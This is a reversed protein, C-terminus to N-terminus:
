IYNSMNNQIHKKGNHHFPCYKVDGVPFVGSIDAGM